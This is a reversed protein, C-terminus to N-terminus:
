RPAWVSTDLGASTVAITDEDLGVLDDLRGVENSLRVASVRLCRAAEAPHLNLPAAAREPTVGAVHLLTVAREQPGLRGLAVAAARVAEPWAIADDAHPISHPFFLQRLALWRRRRADQRLYRAAIELHVAGELVPQGGLRRTTLVEVIADEVLASAERPSGTLLIAWDVLHRERADNGEDSASDSM